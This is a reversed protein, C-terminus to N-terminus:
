GVLDSRSTVPGERLRALKLGAAFSRQAQLITNQRLIEADSPWDDDGTAVAFRDLANPSTDNALETLMAAARRIQDSSARLVDSPRSPSVPRIM